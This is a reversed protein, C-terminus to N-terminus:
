DNNEKLFGARIYLDRLKWQGALLRQIALEYKVKLDTNEGSSYFVQPNYMAAELYELKSKTTLSKGDPALKTFLEEVKIKNEAKRLAAILSKDM